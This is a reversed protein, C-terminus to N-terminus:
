IMLLSNRRRRLAPTQEYLLSNPKVALKEGSMVFHSISAQGSVAKGPPVKAPEM